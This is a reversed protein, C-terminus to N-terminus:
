FFFYYYYFSIFSNHSLRIMVYCRFFYQQFHVLVYVSNYFSPSSIRIWSYIFFVLQFLFTIIFHYQAVDVVIVIIFLLFICIKTLISFYQFDLTYFLISNFQFQDSVVLDDVIIQFYYYLFSSNISSFNNNKFKYYYYKVRQQRKTKM